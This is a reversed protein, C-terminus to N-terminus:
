AEEAQRAPQLLDEGGTKSSDMSDTSLPTHLNSGDNKMSIALEEKTFPIKFGNKDYGLDEITVEGKTLEVVKKAYELKLRHQHIRAHYAVTLNKLGLFDCFDGVKMRRHWRYDELKM